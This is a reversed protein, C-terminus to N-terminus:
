AVACKQLAREIEVGNITLVEAITLQLFELLDGQLIVDAIPLISGNVDLRVGFHFIHGIQIQVVRQDLKFERYLVFWATNPQLSKAAAIDLRSCSIRTISGVCIFCGSLEALWTCNDHRYVVGLLLDSDKVPSTAQVSSLRNTM